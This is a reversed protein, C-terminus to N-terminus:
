ANGASPAVTNTSMGVEGSTAGLVRITRAPPDADFRNGLPAGIKTMAAKLVAYSCALPQIKGRALPPAPLAGTAAAAHLAEYIAQADADDGDLVVIASAVRTADDMALTTTVIFESAADVIQAVTKAM